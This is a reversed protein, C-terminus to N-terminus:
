GDIEDDCADGTRLLSIMGSKNGDLEGITGWPYGQPFSLRFVYRDAEVLLRSCEATGEFLMAGHALVPDIPVSIRVELTAGILLNAAATPAMHERLVVCKVVTERKRRKVSYWFPIADNM